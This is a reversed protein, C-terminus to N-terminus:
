DFVQPPKFITSTPSVGHHMVLLVPDEGRQITQITAHYVEGNPRTFKLYGDIEGPDQMEDYRKVVQYSQEAFLDGNRYKRVTGGDTFVWKKSGTENKGIGATDEIWTGVIMQRVEEVTPREVTDPVPVEAYDSKNVDPQPGSTQEGMIFFGATVAVFLFATALPLANGVTPFGMRADLM